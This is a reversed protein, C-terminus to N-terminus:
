KQATWNMFAAVANAYTMTGSAIANKHADLTDGYNLKEGCTAVFTKVTKVYLAAQAKLSGARRQDAKAKREAATATKIREKVSKTDSALKSALSRLQATTMSELEEISTNKKPM